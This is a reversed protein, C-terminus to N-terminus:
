VWTGRPHAQRCYKLLCILHARFITKQSLKKIKIPYLFLIRSFLIRKPSSYMLLRAIIEYRKDDSLQLYDQYNFKIATQM